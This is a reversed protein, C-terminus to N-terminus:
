GDWGASNPHDQPWTVFYTNSRRSFKGSEVRLVGASKCRRKSRDITSLSCRLTSALTKRKPIIGKPGEHNLLLSLFRTDLAMLDPHKSIYGQMFLPRERRTVPRGPSKSPTALLSEAPPKPLKGLQGHVIFKGLGKRWAVIVVNTGAAPLASHFADYTMGNISVIFDKSRLGAKWAPSRPAVIVRPGYEAVADWDVEISRETLGLYGPPPSPLPATTELTM